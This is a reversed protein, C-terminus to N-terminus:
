KGLKERQLKRLNKEVAKATIKALDNGFIGKARDEDIKKGPKIKNKAEIDKNSSRM